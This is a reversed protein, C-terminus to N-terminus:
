GQRYVGFRAGEAIANGLLLGSHRHPVVIVTTIPCAPQPNVLHLLATLGRWKSSNVDYGDQRSLGLM